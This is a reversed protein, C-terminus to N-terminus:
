GAPSGDEADPVSPAAGQQIATSHRRLFRGLVEPTWSTWRLHDAYLSTGAGGHRRADAFSKLAEMDGRDVIWCAGRAWPCVSDCPCSSSFLVPGEDQVEGVGSFSDDLRELWVVLRGGKRVHGIGVDHVVGHGFEIRGPDVELGVDIAQHVIEQGVLPLLARVL